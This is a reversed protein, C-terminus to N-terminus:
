GALRNDEHFIQYETEIKKAIENDRSYIIVINTDLLYDM